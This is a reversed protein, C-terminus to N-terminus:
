VHGNCQVTLMGKKYKSLHYVYINTYSNWVKLRSVCEKVFDCFAIQPIFM